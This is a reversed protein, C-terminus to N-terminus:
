SATKKANGEGSQKEEWTDLLDEIAMDHKQVSTQLRALTHTIEKMQTNEEAISNELSQFKEGIQFREEIQKIFTENKRKFFM